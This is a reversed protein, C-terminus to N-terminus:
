CAAAERPTPIESWTRGDLERGNAKPTRGGWQKFFFSIGRAMCQDRLVQVHAPVLPRANHGSEGGAIVWDIDYGELSLVGLLPEASVFRVAAPIKSLIPLRRRAWEENEASVGLWVNHPWRAGWPVMRMVNGPRKTLLLWDLNPTEGILRWLDERWANLAEPM